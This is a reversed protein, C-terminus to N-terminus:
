VNARAACTSVDSVLVSSHNRAGRGGETALLDACEQSGRTSHAPATKGNADGLRTPAESADPPANSPEEEQVPGRTKSLVRQPAISEEEEEEEEGCSEGSVMGLDESLTSNRVLTRRAAPQRTKESNQAAAHPQDHNAPKVYSMGWFMDDKDQDQEPTDEWMRGRRNREDLLPSTCPSILPSTIETADGSKLDSQRVGSDLQHYSGTRPMLGAKRALVKVEDKVAEDQEADVSGTWSPVRGFNPESIDSQTVSGSSSATRMAAAAVGATKMKERLEGIAHVRTFVVPYSKTLEEFDQKDLQLLEIDRSLSKCQPGFLSMETSKSGRAIVSASRPEGSTLAREGFCDGVRRADVALGNFEVSVAGRFIFYLSDGVEGQKFVSNGPPIVVVKLARVIADLAEPEVKRFHALGCIFRLIKVHLSGGLGGVRLCTRTNCESREWPM